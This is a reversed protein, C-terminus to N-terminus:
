IVAGGDFATAVLLASPVNVIEFTGAPEFRCIAAGPKTPVVYKLTAVAFPAMPAIGSTEDAAVVDPEKLPCKTSAVVRPWIGLTVIAIRLPTLAVVPSAIWCNGVSVVPAYLM